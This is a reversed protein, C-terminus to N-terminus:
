RADADQDDVVVRHDAAPHAVEEVQVVIELDDALRGVAVAASSAAAASRGSTTTMSRSIGPRSPMAAVASSFARWGAISTTAMVLKM